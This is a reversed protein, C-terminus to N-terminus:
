NLKMPKPGLGGHAVGFCCVNMHLSGLLHAYVQEGKCYTETVVCLAFGFYLMM